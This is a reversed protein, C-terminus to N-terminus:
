IAIRSRQDHLGTAVKQVLGNNTVAREFLRLNVSKGGDGRGVGETWLTWESSERESRRDRKRDELRERM